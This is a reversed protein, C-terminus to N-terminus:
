YCYDDFGDKNKDFICLLILLFFVVIVFVANFIANLVTNVACIIAVSLNNGCSSKKKAV